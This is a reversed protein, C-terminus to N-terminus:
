QDATLAHLADFDITGHPTRPLEPVTRLTGPVAPAPLTQALQRRLTRPDYGPGPVLFATLDTGGPTPLVAADTVDPCSRLANEVAALEIRHGRVKVLRDRRGHFTLGGTRGWRVRDGTRYLRAGPIDSHPDPQFAEDTLRPHGLYGRAVGSGGVSLEGATGMPMPRGHRDLIYLHAGPIARGIDVPGPRHFRRHTSWVTAETPGYENVLGASGNVAFHRAVLAEPLAEGATIAVDLSGLRLPGTREACDLVAAYLAPVSLMATVGHKEILGVLREPDRVDDTAAVVLQGGTTLTGWLGAVSSDLSLPSVLLFTRYGGYTMRRAETSAALSGHEVIVGKPEGTTGSTYIIYAPDGPEARHRGPRDGARPVDQPSIVRADPLRDRWVPDAVVLEAGSDALIGTLRAMPHDPDLPVYVGGARLVALVAVVMEASPEMLVAVPTGRGVGRAALAAALSDSWDALERYSLSTTAGTVAPHDPSAAAIAAVDEHVPRLDDPLDPGRGTTLLRAHEAASLMALSGTAAGDDATMETLVAAVHGTLQEIQSRGYRSSRYTAQLEASSGHDRLVLTLDYSSTRVPLELATVELGPIQREPEIAEVNYLVQFVPTRTPDPTIKLQRVVEDFPVARHTFARLLTRQVAQCFAPVPQGPDLRLRVAAPNVFMGVTDAFEATRTDMTAGLVLDDTDTYRGLTLALAALGLVQTTTRHRRGLARLADWVPEPVPVRVMAGARDTTAAAIEFGLPEPAAPMRLDEIWADLQESPTWAAAEREIHDQYSRAPPGPERGTYAEWLDRVIIALSRGDVVAHHANILLVHEDPGLRLLHADVLRGGALDFARTVARDLEAPLAHPPCERVPLTFEQVPWQSRRPEGHADSLRLRLEAHRELVTRWARLLADPDVRGRLRGAWATTFEPSGPGARHALWLQQQASSLPRGNTRRTQDASL